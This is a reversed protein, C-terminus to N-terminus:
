LEFPHEVKADIKVPHPSGAIVQSALKLTAREGHELAAVADLNELRIPQGAARTHADSWTLHSAVIEVEVDVKKADARWDGSSASPKSSAPPATHKPEAAKPKEAIARELNTLGADDASLDGSLDVRIKGLKERSLLARMSPLSIKAELVAAGSP